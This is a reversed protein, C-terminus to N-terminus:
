SGRGPVPGARPGGAAVHEQPPSLTDGAGPESDPTAASERPAVVEGLARLCAAFRATDVSCHVVRGRRRTRVFGHRRLISLHWSVLPQSVELAAVLDTVTIEGRLALQRMINLRVRDSLAALMQKLETFEHWDAM